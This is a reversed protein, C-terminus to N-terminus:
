LRNGCVKDQQRKKTEYNRANSAVSLAARARTACEDGPGVSTETVDPGQAVPQPKRADVGSSASLQPHQQQGSRDHHNKKQHNEKKKMEKGNKKEKQHKEVGKEAHFAM